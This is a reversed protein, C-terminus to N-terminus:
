ILEDGRLQAEFGGDVFILQGAVLGNGSSTLWVLLEAVDEPRGVDRLPQSIRETAAKRGASHGLMYATMPTDILGPAVANLAIEAGAWDSTPARRRVWRALARKSSSYVLRGDLGDCLSAAMDEDGTLCADVVEPVVDFLVGVSAVVVARPHEALALLPRLGELTAIAGFYNVRVITSGDASNGSVAACVVVADLVQVLDSTRAVLDARGLPTGLDVNIEADDLDVGIARTGSRELLERTARGIGSASGTVLCTRV